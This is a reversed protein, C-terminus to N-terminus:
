ITLTVRNGQWADQSVNTSIGWSSGCVGYQSRPPKFLSNGNQLGQQQHDRTDMPSDAVAGYEVQGCSGLGNCLRKAQHFDELDEHRRKNPVSIMYDM